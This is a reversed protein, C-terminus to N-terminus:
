IVLNLDFRKREPFSNQDVWRDVCFDVSSLERCHESAAVYTVISDINWGDNNDALIAIGQIDKKRMCGAFGFDDLLSLKWQKGRSESPLDALATTNTLGDAKLEIKHAVDAQTDSNLKDSTYADVYLYNICPGTSTKLCLPFELHKDDGNGDIWQDVNHDVSLSEWCDCSSAAFTDISGISWADNSAAVISISQIDYLTICSTFGFDSEISLRWLDGVEKQFKGKPLDPLKTTSKIGKALVTINHDTNSQGNYVDSTLASVFIYNICQGTCLLVYM